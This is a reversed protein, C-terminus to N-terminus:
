IFSWPKSSSGAGFDVVGCITKPWGECAGLDLPCKSSMVPESPELAAERSRSAYESSTIHGEDKAQKLKAVKEAETTPVWRRFVNIEGCFDPINRISIGGCHSPYVRGDMPQHAGANHTCM